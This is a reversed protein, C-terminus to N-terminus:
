PRIYLNGTIPSRASFCAFEIYTDFFANVVLSVFDYSPETEM